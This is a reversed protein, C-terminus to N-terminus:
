KKEGKTKMNITFEYCYGLNEGLFDIIDQGFIARADDLKIHQTGMPHLISVFDHQYAVVYTAKGIHTLKKTTM